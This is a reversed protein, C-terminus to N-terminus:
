PLLRMSNRFQVQCNVGEQNIHPSNLSSPYSVPGKRIRCQVCSGVLRNLAVEAKRRPSFGKKRKPVVKMSPDVPFVVISEELKRKTSPPIHDEDNERTQPRASSCSNLPPHHHRAPGQNIDSPQSTHTREEESFSPASGALVVSSNSVESPTPMSSSIPELSNQQRVNSLSEIDSSRFQIEGLDIDGFLTFSEDDPLFFAYDDSSYFPNFDDM